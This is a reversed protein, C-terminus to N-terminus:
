EHVAHEAFREPDQRVLEACRDNCLWFKKGDIETLDAPPTTQMGCPPCTIRPKEAATEPAEQTKPESAPESAPESPCGSLLVAVLLANLPTRAEPCNM